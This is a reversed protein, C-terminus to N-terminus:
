KREEKLSAKLSFRVVMSTHRGEEDAVHVAQGEGGVVLYNVDPPDETM